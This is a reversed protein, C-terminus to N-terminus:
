KSSVVVITLNVKATDAPRVPPKEIPKEDGTLRPKPPTILNVIQEASVHDVVVQGSPTKTQVSLRASDFREWVNALDALLM